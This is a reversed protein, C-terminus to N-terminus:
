NAARKGNTAAVEQILFNHWGHKEVITGRYLLQGNARLEVKPLNRLRQLLLVSGVRLSRIDALSLEREGLVATLEVSRDAVAGFESRDTESSVIRFLQDRFEVGVSLPLAVALEGTGAGVTWRITATLLPEDFAFATTLLGPHDLNQILGALGNNSAFPGFVHEAAASFARSVFSMFIRTETSSLRSEDTDKDVASEADGGLLAAVLLRPMGPAVRLILTIPSDFVAILVFQARADACFERFTESGPRVDAVKIPVALDRLLSQRLQEYFRMTLVQFQQLESPELGGSANIADEYM